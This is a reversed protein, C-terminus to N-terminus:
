KISIFQNCPPSNSLNSHMNTIYCQKCTIHILYTSMGTPTERIIYSSLAMLALFSFSHVECASRQREYCWWFQDHQAAMHALNQMWLLLKNYNSFKEMKSTLSFNNKQINKSEQGKWLKTSFCALSHQIVFCM